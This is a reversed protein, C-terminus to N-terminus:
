QNPPEDPLRIVVPVGLVPTDPEERTGVPVPAQRGLVAGAIALVAATVLIWLGAGASSDISLDVPATREVERAGGVWGLVQMGITCVTGALFAAGLATMPGRMRGVRHDAAWPATRLGLVAAALLAVAALTLPVGNLPTSIGVSFAGVRDDTRTAWSTISYSTEGQDGFRWTNIYLAQFSGVVTLVAAACCLLTSLSRRSSRSVLNGGFGTM